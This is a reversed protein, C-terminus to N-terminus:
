KCVWVSRTHVQQLYQSLNLLNPAKQENTSAPLSEPFSFHTTDLVTRDCDLFACFKSYASPSPIVSKNVPSCELRSIDMAPIPIFQQVTPEMPKDIQVAEPTAILSSELGNNNGSHKFKNLFHGANDPIQISAPTAAAPLASAPVELTKSISDINAPTLKSSSECVTTTLLETNSSLSPDDVLFDNSTNLLWDGCRELDNNPSKPKKETSVHVFTTENPPITHTLNLHDNSSPEVLVTEDAQTTCTLDLSLSGNTVQESAYHPCLRKLTSRPSVIQSDCCAFSLQDGLVTLDQEPKSKITSTPLTLDLKGKCNQEYVSLASIQAPDVSTINLFSTDTTCTIDLEEGGSKAVTSSQIGATSTVCPKQDCAFSFAGSFQAARDTTASLRVSNCTSTSQQQGYGACTFDLSVEANVTTEKASPCSVEDLLSDPSLLSFSSHHDSTLDMSLSKHISKDLTPKAQSLNAGLLNGPPLEGPIQIATFTYYNKGLIVYMGPM